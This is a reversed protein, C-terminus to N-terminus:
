EATQFFLKLVDKWNRHSPNVQIFRTKSVRNLGVHHFSLSRFSLPVTALVIGALQLFSERNHRGRQQWTMSYTPYGIAILYAKLIYSSNNM